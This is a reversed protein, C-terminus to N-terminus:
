VAKQDHDPPLNNHTNTPIVSNDQLKDVVKNSVQEVIKKTNLTPQPAAPTHTPINHLAETTKHQEQKIKTLDQHVTETFKAIAHATGAEKTFASGAGGSAVAPAAPVGGSDKKIEEKLKDIIEDTNSKGKVIKLAAIAGRANGPSLGTKAGLSNGYREALATIRENAAAKVMNEGATTFTKNADVQAKREAAQQTMLDNIRQDFPTPANKNTANALYTNKSRRANDLEQERSQIRANRHASDAEHEEKNDKEYREQARQKETDTAKLAEARKKIETERDKVSKEFNKATAKGIDVNGVIKSAGKKIISGGPANRVDFTAKSIGSTGRWLANGIASRGAWNKFGTSDAARSAIRGASNRGAFSGVNAATRFGAGLIASGGRNVLTNAMGGAQEMIWDSVKLMVYLMVVVFGLRISVNAIAAVLTLPQAAQGAVGAATTPFISGILSSNGSTLSRVFLNLLYFMFLFVAPYFSLSVLARLWMDFFNRTKTLTQAVFALPSAILVFWLGVIRLFFKIGAMLLSAALMWFMVAVALFIVILVLLTSWPANTGILAQANTFSKAGLLQDVRIAAMINTTIDSPAGAATGVTASGNQTVIANYFQTALINGGDIVVRTFFFSFNVVLAIAIVWALVQMTRSTEARLMITFAAYILIFIFFMNALSLVLTWSTTLFDLAYATSNLAIKVVFDFFYAAWSLAWSAFGPGIVYIINSLCSTIGSCEAPNATGGSTGDSYNAGTIQGSSNTVPTGLKYGSPCSGDSNQGTTRYAPPLGICAVSQAHAVPTQYLTSVPGFAVVLIVLAAATKLFKSLM